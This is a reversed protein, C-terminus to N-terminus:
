WRRGVVRARGKLARRLDACGTGRSAAAVHPQRLHDHGRHRCRELLGPRHARPRSRHPQVPRPQLLSRLIALDRLREWGLPLSGVIWERGFSADLCLERGDASLTLHTALREGERNRHVEEPVSNVLIAEDSERPGRRYVAFEWCWYVDGSDAVMPSADRFQTEPFWRIQESQVDFVGLTRGITANSGPPHACYFWLYAGDPSLSPNTFYFSQQLPAVRQSLLFSTVGSHPDTWAEFATSGAPDM